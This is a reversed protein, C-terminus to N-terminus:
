EKALSVDTAKFVAVVEDGVKVDLRDVAPAILASVLEGVATDLYVLTMAPGKVVHTVTGKIQNPFSLQMTAEESVIEINVAKILAIVEAGISVQFRSLLPTIFGACVTGGDVAIGVTSMTADSAIHQITGRIRNPISTLYRTFIGRHGEMELQTVGDLPLGVRRCWAVIDAKNEAELLWLIRGEALSHFSRYGRVHADHQSAHAIERIREESLSGPPHTHVTM